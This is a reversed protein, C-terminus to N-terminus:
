HQFASSLAVVQGSTKQTLTHTGMNIFVHYFCLFHIISFIRLSLFMGNNNKDCNINIVNKPERLIYNYYLLLYIYLINHVKVKRVM